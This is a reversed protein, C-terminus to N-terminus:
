SLKAEDEAAVVGHRALLLKTLHYVRGVLLAAADTTTPGYPELYYFVERDTLLALISRDWQEFESQSYEENAELRRRQEKWLALLELYNRAKLPDAPVTELLRDYTTM